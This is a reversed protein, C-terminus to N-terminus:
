AILYILRERENGRERGREKLFAISLFILPSCNKNCVQSLQCGLATKKKPIETKGSALELQTYPGRHM